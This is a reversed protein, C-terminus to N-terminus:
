ALMDSLLQGIFPDLTLGKDVINMMRAWTLYRGVDSFQVGSVEAIERENDAMGAHSLVKVADEVSFEAGLTSTLGFRALWDMRRRRIESQLGDVDTPWTKGARVAYARLDRIISPWNGALISLKKRISPYADDGMEHLWRRLVVDHWPGLLMGEYGKGAIVGLDLGSNVLEWAKTPGVLFVFRVYSDGRTYEQRKQAADQLSKLSWPVSHRVLAITLGKSRETLRSFELNKDFVFVRKPRSPFTQVLLTEVKDIGSAESGFCLTVGHKPQILSHMQADTLPSPEYDDSHLSRAMPSRHQSGDYAPEQEWEKGLEMCIKQYEGLMRAFAPSRLDFFGDSKRLVGMEVMHDLIVETDKETSFLSPAYFRVKELITELSYGRIDRVEPSDKSLLAIAYVLVKFRGDLGLTLNLRHRFENQLEESKLVTDVVRGTVIYPPGTIALGTLYAILHQGFIQAWSPYFNTHWLVSQLVPQAEFRFGLVRLPDRILSRAAEIEKNLDLWGGNDAVFPGILMQKGLQGFPHDNDYAYGQVSRLGSFVVKFRNNNRKQLDALTRTIERPQVSDSHFLPPRNDQDLFRDAEDLLLLLRRDIAGDLWLQVSRVVTERGPPESEDLEDPRAFIAREKLLDSLYWWFQEIPKTLGLGTSLLDVYIAQETPSNENVAREVERLLATKGLQRGGYVLYKGGFAILDAKQTERGFFMEPPVSGGGPVFPQAYTFPLSCEFLARMRGSPLTGLFFLLATDVVICTQAREWCAAALGRRADAAFASFYLIIRPDGSSGRTQFLESPDAEHWVARAKLNGGSQSGFIPLPCVRRDLTPRFKVEFDCVQRPRAQRFEVTQSHELVFGLFALIEFVVEVTLVGTQAVASWQSCVENVRSRDRLSLASFDLGSDILNLTGSESQRLKAALRNPVDPYFLNLYDTWSAGDVAGTVAAQTVLWAKDFAGLRLLSDVTCRLETPTDEPLQILRRAGEMFRHKCRDIEAEIESVRELTSKFLNPPGYPFQSGESPLNQTLQDLEAKLKLAEPPPMLANHVADDLLQAVKGIQQKATSKRIAVSASLLRMIFGEVEPNRTSFSRAHIELRSFDDRDVLQELYARWSIKSRFFRLIISLRGEPADEGGGDSVVLARDAQIWEGGELFVSEGKSGLIADLDDLHRQCIWSGTALFVDDSANFVQLHRDVSPRLEELAIRLKLTATSPAEPKEHASARLWARALQVARRLDRVLGDYAPWGRRIAGKIKGSGVEGDEICRHIKADTEISRLALLVMDRAASGGKLIPDTLQWVVGGNDRGKSPRVLFNWVAVATYTHRERREAERIFIRVDERVDEVSVSLPEIISSSTKDPDIPEGSAGVECIAIALQRLEQPVRTSGEIRKLVAVANRDAALVAPKLALAFLWLWSAISYERGAPYQALVAGCAANVVLATDDQSTQFFRAWGAGRVLEPSLENKWDPPQHRLSDLLEYALEFRDLSLLDLAAEVGSRYAEEPHEPLDAVIAAARQALHESKEGFVGGDLIAPWESPLPISVSISADVEGAIRAEAETLLQNAFKLLEDRHEGGSPAARDNDALSESPHTPLGNGPVASDPPVVSSELTHSSSEGSSEGVSLGEIHAREVTQAVAYEDNRNFDLLIPLMKGFDGYEAELNKILILFESEKGKEDVLEIARILKAVRHSGQALQVLEGDPNFTEISSYLEELRRIDEFVPAVFNVFKSDRLKILSAQDLVKRIMQAQSERFQQLVDQAQSFSAVPKGESGVGYQSVSLYFGALREEFTRLESLPDGFSLEGREVACSVIRLEGALRAAEDKLGEFQHIVGSIDATIM